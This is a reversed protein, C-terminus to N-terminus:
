FVKSIPKLYKKYNIRSIPALLERCYRRFLNFCNVVTDGLSAWVVGLTIRMLELLERCYISFASSSSGVSDAMVLPDAVTTTV